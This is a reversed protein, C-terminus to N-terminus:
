PRVEAVWAGAEYSYDYAACELADWSRAARVWALANADAEYGRTDNPGHQQGRFRAIREKAAKFSIKKM